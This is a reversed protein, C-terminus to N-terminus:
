GPPAATAHAVFRAWERAQAEDLAWPKLESLGDASATVRAHFRADGAHVKVLRGPRLAVQVVFLAASASHLDAESVLGDCTLTVQHDPDLADPLQLEYDIVGARETLEPERFADLTAPILPLQRALAECQASSLAAIAGLHDAALFPEGDMLTVVQDAVRLVELLPSSVQPDHHQEIALALLSPLGWSRGLLTGLAVHHAEVLQWWGDENRTDAEPHETLLQELIGIGPVRGIDHLLGAVFAEDPKVEFMPAVWSAVQACALSERWARRRLAVLAGGGLTTEHLEKAVSVERLTKRGLVLVVQQLSVVEAARRYAASNALRLVIAALAQDQELASKLAELPTSEDALLQMLRLAVVPSPPVRITGKKVRAIMVAELDM